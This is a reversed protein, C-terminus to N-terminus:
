QWFGYYVCGYDPGFVTDCRQGLIGKLLETVASIFPCEQCKQKVNVDNKKSILSFSIFFLM